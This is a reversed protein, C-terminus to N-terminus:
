RMQRAKPNCGCRVSVKLSDASGSKTSFPRSMTPSSIAGGSRAITNHTSSFDGRVPRVGCRRNCGGRCATATQRREVRGGALDDPSAKGPMPRALETGEEIGDLGGHGVIEVQVDDDVVHRAMLRLRDAIPEGLPWAPLHVVRRCRCGPDVLDLKKALRVSFCIRRPTWREM